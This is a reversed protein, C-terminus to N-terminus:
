RLGNGISIIVIGIIMGFLGLYLFKKAASSAKRWEGVILGAVTATLVSM